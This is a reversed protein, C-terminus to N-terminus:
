LSVAQSSSIGVLNAIKTIDANISSDNSTYEIFTTDINGLIESITTEYSFTNLTGLGYMFAYAESMGHNISNQNGSIDNKTENLYHIAMGGVLKYFENVIVDRQALADNIRNATIAARGTRFANAIKNGSGLSSVIYSKNAYKGWFRDTGNAPYDVADTFYGYAEDWHNEMQTFYKGNDADLATSNDSLEILSMYNDTIQWAFCSAMLGKEILQTWEMGNSSQLYGGSDCPSQSATGIEDMWTEFQNTYPVQIGGVTKNKLRTRQYDPRTDILNTDSWSVYSNDYMAKLDVKSVSAGTVGDGAVDNSDNASKLYAVMESLMDLRAKQFPNYVTNNGMNDTFAYTSPVSYYICSGDDTKADPDYNTASSDSCGEKKCSFLGLVILVFISSSSSFLKKIKKQSM